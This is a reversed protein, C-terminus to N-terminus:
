EQVELTYQFGTPWDTMGLGLTVRRLPGYDNTEVSGFSMMHVGDAEIDDLVDWGNSGYWDLLEQGAEVSTLDFVLYFNEASRMASVPTGDPLPLDDPWGNPMTTAEFGQDVAAQSLGDTGASGGDDQSSDDASDDDSGDDTEADDTGSDADDGGDATAQEAEVEVEPTDDADDSSSGCGGLAIAVAFALAASTCTRTRM